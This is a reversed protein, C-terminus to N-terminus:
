EKELRCVSRCFARFEVAFAELDPTIYHKFQDLASTTPDIEGLRADDILKAWGVRYEPHTRLMEGLAYVEAYYLMGSKDDKIIHKLSHDTLLSQIKLWRGDIIANRLDALRATNRDFFRVTEGTIAYAEAATALGEDMWRPLRGVLAYHLYQHMAEHAAVALTAKGGIRWCVTVGNYTYGGSDIQAAPSHPGFIHKTLDVWQDRSALLYVPMRTKTRLPVGSIEGCRTRVAELFGPLVVLLRGKGTVYIRYHKSVIIQGDAIGRVDWAEKRVEAALSVSTLAPDDAKPEVVCGALALAALVLCSTSIRGLKM